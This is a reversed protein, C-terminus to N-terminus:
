YLKQNSFVDFVKRNIQLVNASKLWAFTSFKFGSIL